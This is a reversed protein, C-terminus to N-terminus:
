PFDFNAKREVCTGGLSPQTCLVVIGRMKTGSPLSMGIGKAVYATEGAELEKVGPPCAGPSSIFPTNSDEPGSFGQDHTIDRITISSSWFSETGINEVRFIMYGVGGCIHLNSFSLTFDAVKPLPPPTIVVLGAVNGSVTTTEAWVWCYEGPRNPNAIYWWTNSDNRGHVTSQQGALLYGVRPYLKNPGSRCNTDVSAVITPVSPTFTATPPEPTFTFVPTFTPVPVTETPTFQAEPSPLASPEQTPEPAQLTQAQETLMDQQAQLTNQLRQAQITEAAATIAADEDPPTDSTQSPMNCALSVILMIILLLLPNALTRLHRTNM